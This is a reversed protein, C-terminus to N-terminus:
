GGTLLRRSFLAFSRFAQRFRFHEGILEVKDLLFMFEVKMKPTMGYADARSFTYIKLKGRVLNKRFSVTILKSEM